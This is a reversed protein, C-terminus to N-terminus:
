VPMFKHVLGAFFSIGAPIADDNFDYAPHHLGASDGNGIFVFAGPRAELMFSFDEGGMVPPLDMDVNGSGAVERAVEGAFATQEAHNVTPPYNRTYEVEATCGHVAAVQTIIEQLRQEAYDGIAKDLTRITGSLHAVQPIVNNTTGANFTTISVVVSQLPDVNRSTFTQVAQVVAAGAVVPDACEHPKAAHGGKGTITIQMFDAAALLAGTRTAFHGAPLGPYNHLGYIEQINFREMMGDDVMAKGGAGGEEAPQFVLAVKGNFQRTEALYKAAGLLMATHGDHGCAHMKGDYCSAHAVGSREPMPLADMDARLGIVKGSSTEKGNIIGVVGTRGIGTVVVDVGFQRLLEAVRGSTRPLDYQLEPHAHFDRRWAAVEDKLEAVRNIVPM